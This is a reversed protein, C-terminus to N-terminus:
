IKLSVYNTQNPLSKWGFSPFITKQIYKEWSIVLSFHNGPHSIEQRQKTRETHKYLFNTCMRGMFSLLVLLYFWGHLFDMLFYVCEFSSQIILLHALYSIKSSPYRENQVVWWRRPVSDSRTGHQSFYNRSWPPYCEPLLSQWCLNSQRQSLWGGVEIILVM